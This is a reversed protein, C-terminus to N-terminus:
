DIVESPRAGADLLVRLVADGEPAQGRAGDTSDPEGPSQRQMPRESGRRTRDGSGRYVGTPRHRRLVATHARVPRCCQRCPRPFSRGCREAQPRKLLWDALDRFDGDVLTKARAVLAANAPAPVPSLNAAEVLYVYALYMRGKSRWCEGDHGSYKELLARADDFRNWAETLYISYNTVKCDIPLSSEFDLAGSMAEEFKDQPVNPSHKVVDAATDRANPPFSSDHLVALLTDVAAPNPATLAAIRLRNLFIWLDSPADREIEDLIAAAEPFRYDGRAVRGVAGEGLRLGPVHRHVRRHRVAGPGQRGNDM